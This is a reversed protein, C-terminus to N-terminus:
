LNVNITKNTKGAQRATTEVNYNAPVTSTNPFVFSLINKSYFDAEHQPLIFPKGAKGDKDMYVIHTIGQIGTLRCSTFVMWRGNSSFSHFKEADLSNANKLEETKSHLAQATNEFAKRGNISIKYKEGAPKISDPYVIYYDGDNVAPFTGSQLVSVVLYNGTTSFKPMAASVGYNSFPFVCQAEGFTKSASDYETKYLDFKYNWPKTRDRHPGRCFYLTKGDNSWCPSAYDYNPDSLSKATTVTNTKIDFLVITGFTDTIFDNFKNNQLVREAMDNRNTSFAIVEQKPHFDFYTFYLQQSYQKPVVYRVFSSDDIIYTGSMTGRILIAGHNINNRSATHCNMCSNNLRETDFLIKTNYNELDRESVTMKFQKEAFFNNRYSIYKDIPDKVFWILTDKGHIISLFGNRALSLWKHWKKINPQLIKTYLKTQAKTQKGNSDTIYIKLNAREAFSMNLPAINCPISIGSEYLLPYPKKTTSCSFLTLTIIIIIINAKM